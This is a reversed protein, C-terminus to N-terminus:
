DEKKIIVFRNPEEGSSETYVGGVENCINHVIRREFSNMPDLNVAVGTRKVEIALKKSTYELNEHQKEKYDEVDLIINTRFGTTNQIASRILLQLSEMTKGNKGILIANNDSFLNIKIYNERIKAEMEVKIGMMKTTEIIYNKAYELIDEKKLVKIKIKKGKFLGSTEESEYFYADKEEINLEQLAKEKADESTKGLFEYTKM